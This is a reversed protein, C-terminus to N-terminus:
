SDGHARSGRSAHELAAIRDSLAREAANEELATLREHHEELRDHHHSLTEDDVSEAEASDEATPVGLKRRIEDAAEKGRTKEIYPLHVNTAQEHDSLAGHGDELSMETIPHTRM